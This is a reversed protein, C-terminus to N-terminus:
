RTKSPTVAVQEIADDMAGARRSWDFRQMVAAPHAEDPSWATGSQELLAARAELADALIAEPRKGAADSDYFFPEAATGLPELLEPYSLRRPLLPVAGAATAEVIGIGFFEHDATSVVVDAQAM